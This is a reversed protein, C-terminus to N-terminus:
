KFYYIGDKEEVLGEKSMKEWALRASDSQLSSSRLTYGKFKMLNSAEKYLFTAIGKRRFSEDVKIYDIFPSDLLNKTKEKIDEEVKLKFSNIKNIKHERNYNKEEHSWTDRYGCLADFVELDNSLDCDFLTTKGRWSRLFHWVTPCAQNFNERSLLAIKLYGVKQEELYANLTIVCFGKDEGGLDNPDPDLIELRLNM